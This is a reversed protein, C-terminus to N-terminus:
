VVNRNTLLKLKSYCFIYLIAKFNYGEDDSIELVGVLRLIIFFGLRKEVVIKLIVRKENKLFQCIMRSYRCFPLEGKGEVIRDTEEVGDDDEEECASEEPSDDKESRPTEVGGGSTASRGFVGKVGPVLSNITKEFTGM